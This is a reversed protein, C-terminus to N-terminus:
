EWLLCSSLIFGAAPGKGPVVTSPDFIPVHGLDLGGSGALQTHTRSYLESDAARRMHCLSSIRKSLLAFFYFFSSLLCLSFSVEKSTTQTRSGVTDAVLM